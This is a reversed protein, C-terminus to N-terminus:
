DYIIEINKHKCHNPKDLDLLNHQNWKEDFFVSNKSFTLEVVIDNKKSFTNIHTHVLNLQFKTIFNKIKILNYDLDHFEIALCNINDQHELFFDLWKYEDGEIDVKFLINKSKLEDFILNKDFKCNFFTSYLKLQSLKKFKKFYIVIKKKEFKLISKILYMLILFNSTEPDFCIIKKINYNKNIEEEFDWNEHIGLSVLTDSKTIDAENLLYGGDYLSGYRKLNTKKNPILFNPLNLKLM